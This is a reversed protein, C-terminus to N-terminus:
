MDDIQPERKVRNVARTASRGTTLSIESRMTSTNPKIYAEYPYLNRQNKVFQNYDNLVYVDNSADMYSYTGYMAYDTGVASIPTYDSFEELSLNEASFTVDGSINYMDDYEQSYPMAILYPHNREMKSVNVFGNTTLERLWFNKAGEVDSNFPALTGKKANSIHTPSFPLAITRWIGYSNSAYNIDFSMTYSIKKIAKVEEPISFEINKKAPLEVNEATGNIVVNKWNAGYMPQEGEPCNIILWCYLNNKSSLDGIYVSSNCIVKQLASCERFINKGVVTVSQPLTISTMANCRWFASGGISTVTQPIIITKLASCDMFAYEGILIVGEPITINTLSTCGEFIRAELRKVRKPITVNNLSTCFRFVLDGISSVGEPITIAKLSSCGELVGSPLTTLNLPFNIKTLSTCYRFAYIGIYTVSEPITISTLSSCYGFADADINTVSEPITFSELSSCGLFAEMGIITLGEPVKISTLSSCHNFPGSSWEGRIEYINNPLSIEKITTTSSLFKDIIYRSEYAADSLDLVEVSNMNSDVYHVDEYSINGTLVLKQADSYHGVEVLSDLTGATEVNISYEILDARTFTGDEIVDAVDRDLEVKSCSVALLLLSFLSYYFTKRNKM